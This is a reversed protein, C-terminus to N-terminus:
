DIRPMPPLLAHRRGRDIETILRHCDDCVSQLEFLPEDGLHVYSTHHVQTAPKEMCSQCLWNDRVLAKYRKAKWQPSNMYENYRAWWERQKEAQSERYQQGAREFKQRQYTERLERDVPPANQMQEHTLKAAAIAQGTAGCMVCQWKYQISNNATVLKRLEKHECTCDDMM